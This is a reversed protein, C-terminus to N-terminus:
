VEPLGSWRQTPTSVFHRGPRPHPHGLGGSGSPGASYYPGDQAAYPLGTGTGALTGDSHIPMRSDTPSTETGTATSSSFRRWSRPTPSYPQGAPYIGDGRGAAAAQPGYSIHQPLPQIARPDDEGSYYGSVGEDQGHEQYYGAAGVGAASNYGAVGVYAPSFRGAGERYAAGPGSGSVPSPYMQMEPALPNGDAGAGAGAGGVFLAAGAGPSRLSDVHGNPPAPEQSPKEEEEEKDEVRGRSRGLSFVVVLLVFVGAVVGGAIAGV